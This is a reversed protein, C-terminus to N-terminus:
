GGAMSILKPVVNDPIAMKYGNVIATNDNITLKIYTTGDIIEITQTSGSYNVQAGIAECVERVPVLARDNFIIPSMDSHVPKDRVVLDYMSGTYEHTQGDYELMVPGQASVSSCVFFIAIIAILMLLKKKM